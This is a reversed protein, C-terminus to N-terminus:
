PLTCAARPGACRGARRRAARPAGAAASELAFAPAAGAVQAVRPLKGPACPCLGAYAWAVIQRARPHRRNGRDRSVRARKAYPVSVPQPTCARYRAPAACRLRAESASSFLFGCFAPTCGRSSPTAPTSCTWCSRVDRGGQSSSSGGSVRQQERASAIDQADALQNGPRVRNAGNHSTRARKLPCTRRRPLPRTSTRLAATRALFSM